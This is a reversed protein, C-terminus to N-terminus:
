RRAVKDAFVSPLLPQGSAADYVSATGDHRGVALLRGDPSFAVAQAWDSQAPLVRALTGTEANWLRITRDSGSSALSTGDASFTVSLVGSGHAPTSRVQRAGTAGIDWVRVRKDQGGAALQRSGPRFALTLVADTPDTITYLRLGEAVDWIKVSRDAAASALLRGDASFAVAYVAETHERLVGVARGSATNWIRITKDYGCSALRTGDHNFAVHYVYDRHGELRMREAGTAADFLVIEGALGPTGGGAAVVEGDPSWAVARVLDALGSLPALARGDPMAVRRVQKYGTIALQEGGPHWAVATVQPLVDANQTLPPVRQDLSPRAPRSYAAGAAVWARLIAIEEAALDHKPPMKPKARGEIQLILPSDDPRGPTLAPGSDGGRMLDEHTELLLGGEVKASNHCRLCHREVLPVVDRAYDSAAAAARTAPPQAAVAAGLSGAGAIGVLLRLIWV